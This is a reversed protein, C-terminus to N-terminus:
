WTVFYQVVPHLLSTFSTQALCSSCGRCAAVSISPLKELCKKEEKFGPMDLSISQPVESTARVVICSSATVVTLLSLVERTGFSYWIKSEHNRNGKKKRKWKYVEAGITPQHHGTWFSYGCGLGWFGTFTVKNPFFHDKCIYSLIGLDDQLIWNPGLKLSWHGSLLCLLLCLVSSVAM